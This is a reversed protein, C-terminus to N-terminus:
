PSGPLARALGRHTRFLAVGARQTRAPSQQRPRRGGPASWGPLSRYACRVVERLPSWRLNRVRTLHTQAAGRPTLPRVSGATLTRPPQCPQRQYGLARQSEQIPQGKPTDNRPDTRRAGPGAGARAWRSPKILLMDVVLFMIEAAHSM